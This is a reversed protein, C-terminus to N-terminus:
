PEVTRCVVQGDWGLIAGASIRNGSGAGKEEGKRKEGRSFVGM